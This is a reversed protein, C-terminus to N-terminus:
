RKLSGRFWYERHTDWYWREKTWTFEIDAQDGRVIGQWEIKGHTPSLMVAQFHIGDDRRTATYPADSFNYLNCTTSIFRGNEFIIQEPEDPDLSRGKEGNFGTFTRGDLLHSTEQARAPAFFVVLCSVIVLILSIHRDTMRAAATDLTTAIIVITKVPDWGFRSGAAVFLTGGCPM